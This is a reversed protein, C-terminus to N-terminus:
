CLSPLAPLPRPLPQPTSLPSPVPAALDRSLCPRQKAKGMLSLRTLELWTDDEGRRSVLQERGPMHTQPQAGHTQGRQKEGQELGTESQPWGRTSPLSPLPPSM